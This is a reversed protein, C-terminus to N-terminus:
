GRSEVSKVFVGKGPIGGYCPDRALYQEPDVTPGVFKGGSPCKFPNRSCAFHSNRDWVRMALFELQSSM